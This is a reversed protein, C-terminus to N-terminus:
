VLPDLHIVVDKFRRAMSPIMAFIDERHHSSVSVQGDHVYSRVGNDTHWHDAVVMNVWESMPHDGYYHPGVPFVHVKLSKDHNSTPM